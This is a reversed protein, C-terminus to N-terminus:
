RWPCWIVEVYNLPLGLLCLFSCFSPVDLGFSFKFNLVLLLIFLWYSVQSASSSVSMMVSFLHAATLSIVQLNWWSLCSLWNRLCSDHRYYFLDQCNQKLSRSIVLLLCEKLLFIVSSVSLHTCTNIHM